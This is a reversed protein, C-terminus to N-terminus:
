SSEDFRCFYHEFVAFNHNNLYRKFKGIWDCLYSLKSLLYLLFLLSIEYETIISREELLIMGGLFVNM